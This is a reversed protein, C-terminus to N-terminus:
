HLHPVNYYEYIEHLGYHVTKDMSVGILALGSILSDISEANVYLASGRDKWSLVSYVVSLRKLYYTIVTEYITGTQKMGCSEISTKIRPILNCPMGVSDEATHSKMNYLMVQCVTLKEIVFLARGYESLSHLRTLQTLHDFLRSFKVNGSIPPTFAGKSSVDYSYYQTNTQSFIYAGGEVLREKIRLPNVNLVATHM